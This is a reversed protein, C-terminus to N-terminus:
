KTVERKLKAQSPGAVSTWHEMSQALPVEMVGRKTDPDEPGGPQGIKVVQQKIAFYPAAAKACEVRDSFTPLVIVEVIEQTESDYAFHNLQEGRMVALLWEHPLLGTAKASEIVEKTADIKELTAEMRRRNLGRSSTDSLPKPGPTKRERKLPAAGRPPQRRLKPQRPRLDVEVSSEVRKLDSRPKRPARKTM